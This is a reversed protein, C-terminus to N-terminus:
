LNRMKLAFYKLSALIVSLMIFFPMAPFISIFIIGGFIVSIYYSINAKTETAYNKWYEPNIIDISCPKKDESM